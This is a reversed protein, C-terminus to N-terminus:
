NKYQKYIFNAQEQRQRLDISRKQLNAKGSFGEFLEHAIVYTLIPM